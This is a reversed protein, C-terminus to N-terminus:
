NSAKTFGDNAIHNATIDSSSDDARKHTQIDSRENSPPDAQYKSAVDARIHQSSDNTFIDDSVEISCQFTSGNALQNTEQQTSSDSSNDAQHKSIAFAQDDDSVHDSADDAQCYDAVGDTPEYSLKDSPKDSSHFASTEVARQDIWHEDADCSRESLGCV